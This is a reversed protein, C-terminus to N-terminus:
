RTKTRKGGGGGTVREREEREREREARRKETVQFTWMESSSNIGVPPYIKNEGIRQKWDAKEKKLWSFPKKSNPPCVEVVV